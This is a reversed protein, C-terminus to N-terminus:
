SSTSAWPCWPAPMPASASFRVHGLSLQGTYGLLLNLSIAAVTFIGASVLIHLIYLDTMWLPISFLFVVWAATVAVRM